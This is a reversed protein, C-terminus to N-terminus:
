ICDGQNGERDIARYLSCWRGNVRLYTEDAHWKMGVQGRRKARLRETLLPAFRAEWDRVAEHTFVFGRDLFLEALDRLSLKYRLRWLVVLLVLDTPYQLHNYPTGTRENFIRRLDPPVPQLPLHSLRARHPAAARRDRDRRLPSLV